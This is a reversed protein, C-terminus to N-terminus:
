KAGLYELIRKCSFRVVKDVAEPCFGGIHPTIIVNSNQQSYQWLPNQSIDPEGCLVDVGVAKIIDGQLAEVLATEDALEGRATNIFVSGRKFKRILEANLMGETESNLHVHITIFDSATVLEDLDVSRVYAPPDSINPDYALVHMGFANAYRAIWSGIRGLGIVGITKDIFMEGPFEIREWKGEEVHHVASRLKRACAMLLCWSHEAAATINKLIEKQGKLTLLPIGRNDLAKQDIHDAGTTATVILKLKDAKSISGASIPVKMSADLFVTCAEFQPLLSGATPEVIRVEYKAGLMEKVIEGGHLPGSYVIIDM